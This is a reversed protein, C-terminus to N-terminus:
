NFILGINAMLKGKNCYLDCKDTSTISWGEVKKYQEGNWGRCVFTAGDESNPDYNFPGVEQCGCLIDPEDPTAYLGAYGLSRGSSPQTPSWHGNQLCTSQVPAKWAPCTASCITGVPIASEYPNINKNDCSWRAFKTKNSEEPDLNLPPCSCTKPGSLCDETSPCRSDINDITCESLLSCQSQGRAKHFTFFLCDDHAKCKAQCDEPKDLSLKEILNSAYSRCFHESFWCESSKGGAERQLNSTTNHYYSEPAVSKWLGTEQDLYCDPYTECIYSPQQYPTPPLLHLCRTATLLALLVLFLAQTPFSAIYHFINM